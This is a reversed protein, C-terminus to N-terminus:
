KGRLAKLGELDEMMWSAENWELAEIGRLVERRFAEMGGLPETLGAM